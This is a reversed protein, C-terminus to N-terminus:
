SANKSSSITIRNIKAVLFRSGHCFLLEELVVSECAIGKDVLIRLGIGDEPIEADGAREMGRPTLDDPVGLLRRRGDDKPRLSRPLRRHTQLQDMLDGPVIRFIGLALYKQNAVIVEIRVQPRQLFV